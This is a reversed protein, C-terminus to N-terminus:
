LTVGVSDPLVPVSETAISAASGSSLASRTDHAMVTSPTRVSYATFPLPVPMAVVPGVVPAVLAVYLMEKGSASSWLVFTSGSIWMASPEVNCGPPSVNSLSRTASTTLTSTVGTPSTVTVKSVSVAEPAAVVFPGPCYESSAPVVHVFTPTAARTADNVIVGVAAAWGIRTRPTLRAPTAPGDTAATMGADLADVAGPKEAALM